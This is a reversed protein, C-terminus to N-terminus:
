EICFIVKVEISLRLKSLEEKVVDKQENIEKIHALVKADEEALRDIMAGVEKDMSAIYEKIEELFHTFNPENPSYQQLANVFSEDKMGLRRQVDGFNRLFDAYRERMAMGEKYGVKQLEYIDSDIRAMESKLQELQANLEAKQARLQRATEGDMKQASIQLEKAANDMKVERVRRELDALTASREKQ